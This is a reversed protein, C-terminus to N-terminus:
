SAAAEDLDGWRAVQVDFFSLVRRVGSGVRGCGRHPEKCQRAHRTAAGDDAGGAKDGDNRVGVAHKFCVALQVGRIDGGGAAGAAKDESGGSQGGRRTRGCRTQLTRRTSIGQYRRRGGSWSQCFALITDNKPWLICFTPLKKLDSNRWLEIAAKELINLAHQVSREGGGRSVQLIKRFSTAVNVHNLEASHTSIFDCLERTDCIRMIQKNLEINYQKSSPRQTRTYQRDRDCGRERDIDRERGRGLERDRTRERENYRERKRGGEEDRAKGRDAQRDPGDRGRCLARTGSSNLIHRNRETVHNFPKNPRQTLTYERDSDEGRQRDKNRDSENYRDKQRGRDEERGGKGRDSQSGSGDRGRRSNLVSYLLIVHFQGGCDTM